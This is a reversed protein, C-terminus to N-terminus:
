ADEEGPPLHANEDVKYKDNLFANQTTSEFGSQYDAVVQSRGIGYSDGPYWLTMMESTRSPHYFANITKAEELQKKEQDISPDDIQLVHNVPQVAQNYPQVQQQPQTYYAEKEPLNSAVQGTADNTGPLAQGNVGNPGAQEDLMLPYSNILNGYMDRLFVHYGIMLALLVFTLVGMPVFTSPHTGSSFLYMLAVVATSVYLGVFTFNIAIPFFLGATEDQRKTEFVYLLLYRSAIYTTIFTVSAFGNMVPALVMYGLGLVVVLMLSGFMTGFGPSKIDKRLHWITRPTSSLLFLKVYYMAVAVIQFLLMAAGSLGLLFVYQLFFTSAKPILGSIMRVFDTPQSIVAAFQTEQAMIGSGISMFLFNQLVQFVFFRKFLSLEIGTKTPIGALKALYKLIPVLLANLIALGATPLIAKVIGIAVGPLSTLWHLFSVNQSLYDFNALMTVIAVPICWFIALAWTAVWSGFSRLKREYPNLTLNEWVVDAPTLETYRKAMRYPMPHAEARAGFYAGLMTNCLLFASNAPPYNEYDKTVHERTSEIEQNLRAIEQRCYSITDVKEGICPIKGLRHTPRQKTPVYREAVDLPPEQGEPITVAEAKNKKVNKGAKAILKTVAGELKMALKDREKVLDPLEKLNRNIWVKKIGGPVSSYIQRIRTESLIERPVGTVLFTRAQNSLRHDPSVMFEQRLKIFEKMAVHINFLIWATIIYHVILVGASRNQESKSPTKIVNSFTFLLFGSEHGPLRASYLPLLVIWTFVWIPVFIRIMLKLYLIYSYADLGNVRYIEQDPTRLFQPIWNFFGEPLPESRRNPMKSLVAKPQYVSQIRPRLVLFGVLFICSLILALIISSIVTSTTTNQAEGGSNQAMAPAALASLLLSAIALKM